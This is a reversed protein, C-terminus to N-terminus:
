SPCAAKPRDRVKVNPTLFDASAALRECDLQWTLKEILTEYWEKDTRYQAKLDARLSDIDLSGCQKRDAQMAACGAVGLGVTLLSLGILAKFKISLNNM